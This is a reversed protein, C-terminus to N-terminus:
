GASCPDPQTAQSPPLKWYWKGDAKSRDKEAIVGLDVKARRLTKESISNAEAADEIETKLVPGKALMDGLFKKAEDRAGLPRNDVAAQMAEMATVDVYDREWIIYPAIIRNEFERRKKVM